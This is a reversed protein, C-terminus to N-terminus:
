APSAGHYEDSAGDVHVLPVELHGMWKGGQQVAASFGGADDHAEHGSRTGVRDVHGNAPHVTLSGLGLDLEDPVFLM